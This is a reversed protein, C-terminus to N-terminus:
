RSPPLPGLIPLPLRLRNGSNGFKTVSGFCNLSTKGYSSWKSGKVKPPRLPSGQPTRGRMRYKLAFGIM